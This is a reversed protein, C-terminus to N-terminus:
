SEDYSLTTRFIGERSPHGNAFRRQLLYPPTPQTGLRGIRDCNQVWRGSEDNDANLSPVLKGAQSQAKDLAVELAKEVEDKSLQHSIGSIGADVIKRAIAEVIAKGFGLEAWVV